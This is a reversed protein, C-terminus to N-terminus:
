FFTVTSRLYRFFTPHFTMIAVHLNVSTRKRQKKENKKFYYTLHLQRNEQM